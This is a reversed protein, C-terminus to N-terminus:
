FESHNYSYGWPIVMPWGNVEVKTVVASHLREHDNTRTQQLAAAVAEARNEAEVDIEYTCQVRVTFLQSMEVVQCTQHAPRLVELM